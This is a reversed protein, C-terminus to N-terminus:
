AHRSPVGSGSQIKEIVRALEGRLEKKRREFRDDSIHEGDHLNEVEALQDLIQERQAMLAKREDKQSREKMTHYSFSAAWALFAGVIVVIFVTHTAMPNPVAVPSQSSGDRALLLLLLGAGAANRIMRLAARWM